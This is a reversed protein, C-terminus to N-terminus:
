QCIRRRKKSQQNTENVNEEKMMAGVLFGAEM